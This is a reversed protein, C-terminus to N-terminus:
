VESEIDYCNRIGFIFDCLAIRILSSLTIDKKACINMLDNYMEESIKSSVRVNNSQYIM